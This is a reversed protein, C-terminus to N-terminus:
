WLSSQSTYGRCSFYPVQWPRAAQMVVDALADKEVWVEVRYKQDAWKDVTYVAANEELLEEPSDWTAWGELRRTRDEMHAWDILGALRAFNITEKLRNYSKM